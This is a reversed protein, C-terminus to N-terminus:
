YLSAPPVFIIVPKFFTAPPRGSSTYRDEQFIDINSVYLNSAHNQTSSTLVHGLIEALGKAAATASAAPPAGIYSRISSM